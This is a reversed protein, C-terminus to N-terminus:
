AAIGENKVTRFFPSASLRILESETAPIISLVQGAEFGVEWATDLAINLTSKELTPLIVLLDVDSMPSAENRAQSGFLIVRVPQGLANTLRQRYRSALKLAQSRSVHRAM